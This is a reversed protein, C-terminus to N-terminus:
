SWIGVNKHSLSSNAAAVFEGRNNKVVGIM